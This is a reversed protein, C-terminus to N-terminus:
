HSNILKQRPPQGKFIQHEMSVTLHVKCSFIAQLLLYYIAASSTNSSSLLLFHTIRLIISRSNNLSTIYLIFSPLFMIQARSHIINRRDHLMKLRGSKTCFIRISIQLFNNFPSFFLLLPFLFPFKNQDRSIAM